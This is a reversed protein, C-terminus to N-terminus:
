LIPLRCHTLALPGTPSNGPGLSHDGGLQHGTRRPISPLLTVQLWLLFFLGADSVATWTIYRPGIWLTVTEEWDLAILNSDCGVCGAAGGAARAVHFYSSDLPRPSPITPVTVDATFGLSGLFHDFAIIVNVLGTWWTIM